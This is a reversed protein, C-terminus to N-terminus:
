DDSIEYISADNISTLPNPGIRIIFSARSDIARILRSISEEISVHWFFVDLVIYDAGEARVSDYLTKAPQKMLTILGFTDFELTSPLEPALAPFIPNLFCIKDAELRTLYEITKQYVVGEYTQRHGDLYQYDGAFVLSGATFVLAL